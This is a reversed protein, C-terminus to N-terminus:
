INLNSWKEKQSNINILPVLKVTTQHPELLIRYRHEHNFLWGWLRRIDPYTCHVMMTQEVIQEGSSEIIGVIGRNVDDRIKSLDRMQERLSRFLFRSFYSGNTTSISKQEHHGSSICIANNRFFLRNATSDVIDTLSLVSNDKLRYPFQMDIGYCCDFIFLFECQDNTEKIFMDRLKIMSMSSGIGNFTKSQVPLRSLLDSDSVELSFVPRRILDVYLGSSTVISEGSIEGVRRIESLTDFTSTNYTAYDNNLGNTLRIDSLVKQGNHSTHRIIPSLGDSLWRQYSDGSSQIRSSSQIRTSINSSSPRIPAVAHIDKEMEKEKEIDTEIDKVIEIETGAYHSSHLSTIALAPHMSISQVPSVNIQKVLSCHYDVSRTDPVAYNNPLEIAGGGRIDSQGHGTYYFFVRKMDKVTDRLLDYLDEHNTYRHYIGSERIIKIFDQINYDVINMKMAGVLRYWKDDRQVDTVVIIRHPNFKLAFDYAQAMDIITGYLRSEGEISEDYQFGIIIATTLPRSETDAM